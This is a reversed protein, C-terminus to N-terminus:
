IRLNSIPAQRVNAQKLAQVIRADDNDQLLVRSGLV